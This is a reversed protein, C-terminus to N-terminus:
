PDTSDSLRGTSFDPRDIAYAEIEFPNERYGDRGRLFLVASIALYAPVFGIGWREYQRVHVREHERTVDLAFRDCGFVVHGMTMAMAPLPMRGLLYAVSPGYIEIVGDVRQFRAGVLLGM